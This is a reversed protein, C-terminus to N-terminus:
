GGGENRSHIIAISIAGDRKQREFSGSQPVANRPSVAM